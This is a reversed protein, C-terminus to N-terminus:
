RARDDHEAIAASLATAEILGIHRWVERGKRDLLVVTPVRNLQPFPGKGALTEEDAMVMPFPLQFSESFMQVMPMNQPPELAIALGNIRPVHDHMVQKLFRAQAQSADDYTALLVVVTMRGHMSGSTVPKGDMGAYSFRRMVPEVSGSQLQEVDAASDAEPPCGLLTLSLLLTGLLLTSLRLAGLRSRLM